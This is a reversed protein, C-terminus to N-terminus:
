DDLRQAPRVERTRTRNPAQAGGAPAASGRGSARGRGRGGGRARVGGRTLGRAREGSGAGAGEGVGAGGSVDAVCLITVIACCPLDQLSIKGSSEVAPVVSSQAHAVVAAVLQDEVEAEEEAEQSTVVGTESDVITTTASSFDSSKEPASDDVDNGVGSNDHDYAHGPFLRATQSLARPVLVARENVDWIALLGTKEWCHVVKERKKENMITVGKSIWEALHAKMVASENIPLTM